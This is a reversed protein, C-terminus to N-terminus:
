GERAKLRAYFERAAQRPNKLDKFWAQKSEGPSITKAEEMVKLQRLLHAYYPPRDPKGPVNIIEIEPRESASAYMGDISGALQADLAIHSFALLGPHGDPFLVFGRASGISGAVATKTEPNLFSPLVTETYGGSLTRAPIEEGTYALQVRVLESTSRCGHEREFAEMRDAWIESWWMAMGETGKGDIIITTGDHVALDILTESYDFMEDSWISKASGVLYMAPKHALRAITGLVEGRESEGDRCVRTLYEDASAVGSGEFRSMAERFHYILRQAAVYNDLLSHFENRVHSGAQRPEFGHSMLREIAHAAFARNEASYGRPTVKVLESNRRFVDAIYQAGDELEHPNIVTVRSDEIKCAGCARMEGILDVTPQWFTTFVIESPPRGPHYMVTPGKKEMQRWTLPGFIEYFTGLGGIESLLVRCDGSGHLFPTRTLWSRQKESSMGFEVPMPPEYDAKPGHLKLLVTYVEAGSPKCFKERYRREAETWAETTIGMVGTEAGGNALSVGLPVLEKALLKAFRKHDDTLAETRASGNIAITPRREMARWLDAARGLAFHDTRSGKGSLNEAANIAGLLLLYFDHQYERLHVLNSVRPESGFSTNLPATPSLGLLSAPKPTNPENHHQDTTM